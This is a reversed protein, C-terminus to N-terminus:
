WTRLLQLQAALVLLPAVAAAVVLAVLQTAQQCPLSSPCSRFTTGACMGTTM